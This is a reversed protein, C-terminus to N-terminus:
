ARVRAKGAELTRSRKTHMHVTRDAPDRHLAKPDAKRVVLLKEATAGTDEARSGECAM